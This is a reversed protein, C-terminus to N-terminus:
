ADDKLRALNHRYSYVVLESRTSVGLKYFISGLHHRVTAESIYLRQAIQKNTLGTCAVEVIEHERPTLTDIKAQEACSIRRIHSSEAFMQALLARDLWVQGRRAHDIADLLTQAGGSKLVIGAAGLRVAVHCADPELHSSVVIAPLPAIRQLLLEFQALQPASGSALDFDILVLDVSDDARASESTSEAVVRFDNRSEILTRLASRYLPHDGVLLIRTPTPPADQAENSAPQWQQAVTLPETATKIESM